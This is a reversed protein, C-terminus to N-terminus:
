SQYSTVKPTVGANCVSTVDTSGPSQSRATFEAEGQTVAEATYFNNGNRALAACAHFTRVVQCNSGCKDNAVSQATSESPQQWSIAWKGDPGTAVAGAEGQAHAAPAMAVTLVAVVAAGVASIAAPTRVSSVMMPTGKEPSNGAIASFQNPDLHTSHLRILHDPAARL